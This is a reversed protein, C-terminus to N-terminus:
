TFAKYTSYALLCFSYQLFAYLVPLNFLVKPLHKVLVTHWCASPISCFLMYLCGGLSHGAAKEPSFSYPLCYRKM